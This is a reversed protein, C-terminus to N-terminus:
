AQLRGLYGLWVPKVLLICNKRFKGLIKSTKFAECARGQDGWGARSLRPKTRKCFIM